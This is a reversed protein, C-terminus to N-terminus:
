SRATDRDWAEKKDWNGAFDADVFVELERDKYPRLILGKDRTRKLYQGLWQLAKSHEVKQATTFRACQHTIFSISSSTGRELYNLKGIVSRYKFSDDHPHSMSHRSLLVSSSAPTTKTTVRDNDLRLDKLIQDILHPQTLHITRDKKKEINVGLFDQLDGEITLDLKAKRLDKIIQDIEKESPGALISDDTYLVYLTQGRYFLCEDVKSQKFGLENVLKNVLYHNWVRGAQKQGYINCHIKLVYDLNKGNEIEFGAPIKM